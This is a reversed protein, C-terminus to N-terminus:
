LAFFLLLMLLKSLNGKTIALSMRISEWPSKDQDIIFFPFFAVRILTWIILFSTLVMTISVPVHIPVNLYVLPFMLLSIVFYSVFSIFLLLLMGLLFFFLEKFSPISDAWHVKKNHDFIQFIHKFLTLQIGFFLFIFLVAMLINLYTNINNFYFALVGSTNSTL